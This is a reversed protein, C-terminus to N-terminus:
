YRLPHLLGIMFRPNNDFDKLDEYPDDPPDESHM